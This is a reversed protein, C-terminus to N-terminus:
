IEVVEVPAQEALRVIVSVHPAARVLYVPEEVALRKIWPMPLDGLHSRQLLQLAAFVSAREEDDLQDLAALVQSPVTVLEGLGHQESGDWPSNTTDRHRLDM